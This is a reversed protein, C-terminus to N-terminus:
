ATIDHPNQDPRHEERVAICKSCLPYNKPDRSPVWVHGCLAILPSGEIYAATVKSRDVIHAVRGSETTTREDPRTDLLTDTM